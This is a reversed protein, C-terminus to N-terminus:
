EVRKRFLVDITHSFVVHDDPSTGFRPQALALAAILLALLQLLLSPGIPPRRLNPRRAGVNEILRWIQVSAVSVSRRRRAHLLLVIAAASFVLLWAPAIFTM